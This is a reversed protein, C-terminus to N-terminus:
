RNWQRRNLTGLKRAKVEVDTVLELAGEEVDMAAM